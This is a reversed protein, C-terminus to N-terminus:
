VAGLFANAIRLSQFASRFGISLLGRRGRDEEAWTIDDRIGFLSGFPPFV